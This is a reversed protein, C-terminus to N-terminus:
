GAGGLFALAAITMIGFLIVFVVVAVIAGVIVQGPQKV